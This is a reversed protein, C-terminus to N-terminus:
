IYTYTSYRTIGCPITLTTIHTYFFAKVAKREKKKWKNYTTKWNSIMKM